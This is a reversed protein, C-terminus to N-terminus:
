TCVGDPLLQRDKHTRLHRMLHGKQVFGQPCFDCQFPREGTHIRVHVSLNGKRSFAKGCYNCKYLFEGTHVTQHTQMDASNSTSYACVPCQRLEEAAPCGLQPPQDPRLCVAVLDACTLNTCKCRLVNSTFQELVHHM